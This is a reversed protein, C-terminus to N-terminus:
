VLNLDIDKKFEKLIVGYNPTHPTSKKEISEQRQEPGSVQEFNM